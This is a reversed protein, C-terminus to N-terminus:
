VKMRFESGFNRYSTLFASTKIVTSWINALLVRQQDGAQLSYDQLRRKLPCVYYNNLPAHSVLLRCLYISIYIKSIVSIVVYCYHDLENNDFWKNQLGKMFLFIVTLNCQNRKLIMNM